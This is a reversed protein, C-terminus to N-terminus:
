HISIMQVLPNYGIKTPKRANKEEFLTNKWFMIGKSMIM